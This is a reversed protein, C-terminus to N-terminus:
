DLISLSSVSPSVAKVVPLTSLSASQPLNYIQKTKFHFSPYFYRIIVLYKEMCDNLNKRKPFLEVFYVCFTM